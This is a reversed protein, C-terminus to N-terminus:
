SPLWDNDLVESLAWPCEPTFHDSGIGTEKSAITRAELWVDERWEPDTLSSRLMPARQLRQTVARRHGRIASSWDEGRHEPQFQWRLLHVLLVVMRATLEREQRAGIDELEEALHAIDLRDFQGARLLRAQEDAWAVLDDEYATM